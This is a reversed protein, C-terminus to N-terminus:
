KTTKFKIFLQLIEQRYNCVFDSTGQSNKWMNNCKRTSLAKTCNVKGYLDKEVLIAQVWFKWFYYNEGLFIRNNVLKHIWWWSDERLRQELYRNRFKSSELVIGVCVYIPRYGISCSDQLKCWDSIFMLQEKWCWADSAWCYIMCM